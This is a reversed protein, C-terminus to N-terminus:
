ILVQYLFKMTMFVIGLILFGGILYARKKSKAAFDNPTIKEQILNKTDSFLLLLLQSIALLFLIIESISFFHYM